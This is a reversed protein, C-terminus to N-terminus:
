LKDNTSRKYAGHRERSVQSFSTPMKNGSHQSFGQSLQPFGPIANFNRLADYHVSPTTTNSYAVVRRMEDLANAQMLIYNKALLLTAIKSLKRVSPSHAYPIVSRLEDLADNLDHMRRRERANINLRVVKEGKNKRHSKGDFERSEFGEGLGSISNDNRQESAESDDSSSDDVRINSYGNETETIENKRDFIRNGHMEHKMDEYYERGYMATQNFNNGIDSSQSANEKNNSQEFKSVEKNLVLDM